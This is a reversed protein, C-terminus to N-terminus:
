SKAYGGDNHHKSPPTQRGSIIRDISQMGNQFMEGLISNEFLAM